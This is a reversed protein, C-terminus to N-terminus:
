NFFKKRSKKLIAIKFNVNDTRRPLGMASLIKVKFSLNKNILENPEEVFEGLIEKGSTSCPILSVCLLGVESGNVDMISFQEDLEVM